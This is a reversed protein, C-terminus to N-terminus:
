RAYVDHPAPGVDRAGPARVQNPAERARQTASSAAWSNVM